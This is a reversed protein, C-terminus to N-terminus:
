NYDLQNPAIQYKSLYLIYNSFWLQSVYAVCMTKQVCTHHRGVDSHCSGLLMPFMSIDRETHHSMHHEKYLPMDNFTEEKKNEREDM